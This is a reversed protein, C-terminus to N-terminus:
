PIAKAMPTAIRAPLSKRTSSDRALENLSIPTAPVNARHAPITRIVVSNRMMGNGNPKKSDRTTHNTPIMNRKWFVNTCVSIRHSTFTTREQPTIPASSWTKDRANRAHTASNSPFRRDNEAGSKAHLGTRNNGGPLTNTRRAAELTSTMHGFKQVDREDAAPRNAAAHRLDQEFVRVADGGPGPPWDMELADDDAVRVPRPRGDGLLQDGGVERRRDVIRLDVHNHLQDPSGTDGPLDNVVGQGRALMHDRGVLREERLMPRFHERGGPLVLPRNPELRADGPANRDNARQGLTEGGVL